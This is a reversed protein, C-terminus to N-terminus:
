RRPQTIAAMEPHRARFGRWRELWEQTTLNTVGGGDEVRQGSVIEAWVCLDDPELPAPALWDDLHFVALEKMFGGVAVRKGDPTVALSLGAGGLVLPPCVPKGTRWEWVKLIGDDSASLVHRGDLTFAVAHVEHEHEFIRVLGGARWDWLRAMGDRCATLLHKGDPSFLATFTWDPHPLSALQEGTALEWVCVRNDYAATACLRGDPSFRVDHCWDKHRLEHRPQGTLADWVHVSNTARGFTLLSRGDPSFRVTGNNIYGGSDLASRHAQWSRLTEGTAPDIVVLEGKAGIVALQRGDPSYDLNRPESPLPLPQHRLKGARWDWLQLQGPQQGPRAGREAPSAAGSVAVAAQLGDPSFAADLIFGNAELPPGVREGTTVDFV